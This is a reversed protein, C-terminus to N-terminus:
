QSGDFRMRWIEANGTRTSMFIIYQSNPTWCPTFNDGTNTLQTPNGWGNVTWTLRYIDGNEVYILYQGNPSFAPWFANGSSTLLSQTSTTLDHVLINGAKVWAIQNRIPPSWVPTLDNNAPDNTLNTPVTSNANVIAVEWDTGTPSWEFVLQTGSPSWKPRNKNSGLLGMATETNTSLDYIYIDFSKAYAIQTGSPSWDPDRESASDNTRQVLGAGNANITYLDWDGSAGQMVFAVRPGTPDWAPAGVGANPPANNSLNLLGTGNALMVWVDLDGTRDSLFAIRTLLGSLGGGGGCVSVLTVITLVTVVSVALASLSFALARKNM